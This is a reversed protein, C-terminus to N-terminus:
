DQSETLTESEETTETEAGYIKCMLGGVIIQVECDALHEGAQRNVTKWVWNGANNKIRRQSSLQAEYEPCMEVLDDPLQWREPDQMLRQLIDRCHLASFHHMRFKAKQNGIRPASDKSYYRHIMGRGQPNKHPFQKRKDGRLCTWGFRNAWAYVGSEAYPTDGCDVFVFGSVVGFEEAKLHIEEWSFLKGASLLRSAGDAQITRCVHWMHDRQIDVSLMTLRRFRGGAEEMPGPKVKIRGGLMGVVGERWQERDDRWDEWEKALYGAGGVSLSFDDGSEETFFSALRKMHFLKLPGIDGNWSARKATLYEEVLTAWDMSSIANLHFGAKRQSANPNQVVFRASANLDRRTEDTNEFREECSRCIMYVTESIAPYDYDGADNKVPEFKISGWLFPQLHDCHPCTWSWEEKDTTEWLKAFDHDSESGQSALVVKGLYGFATTRAMAEAIRGEDWQWLEDAYLTRISRRQLNRPHSGLCWFSMGNNFLIKTKTALDRDKGTPILEKVPPTNDLLPRLRMTMQDSAEPAQPLLLMTPGPDLAARWAISAEIALSKCTQVAMALIVLSKDPGCIAELIPKVAPVLDPNFGGPVPSYPINKINDRAWEWAKQKKPPTIIRALTERLRSEGSM